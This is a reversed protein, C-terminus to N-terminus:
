QVDIFDKLHESLDVYKLFNVSYSINTLIIRKKYSKGVDFDQLSCVCCFVSYFSMNSVM